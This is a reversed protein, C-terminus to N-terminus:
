SGRTSPEQSAVRIPGHDFQKLKNFRILGNLEKIYVLGRESYKELGQTLRLSDLPQEALRMTARLSRVSEYAPHSNINLLYAAVADDLSNFRAVEHTAGAARRSPVVGCGRTFCWQGFYNNAEKAFRARGWASEMAAQALAMSEPVVDVRTLLEEVLDLDALSDPARYRLAWTELTAQQGLSLTKNDRLRTSMEKLERRQKLIHDNQRQIAPLLDAYFRQKFLPIDTPISWVPASTDAPLERGARLARTEERAQAKLEHSSIFEERSQTWSILGYTLALCLLAYAFFILGPWPTGASPTTSM